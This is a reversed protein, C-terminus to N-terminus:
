RSFTKRHSTRQPMKMMDRMVAAPIFPHGQPSRVRRSRAEGSSFLTENAKPDFFDGLDQAEFLRLEADSSELEYSLRFVVEKLTEVDFDSIPNEQLLEPDESGWSSKLWNRQDEVYRQTLNSLGRRFANHASPTWPTSLDVSTLLSALDAMSSTRM